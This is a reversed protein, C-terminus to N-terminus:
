DPHFPPCSGVLASAPHRGHPANDAHLTLNIRIRDVGTRALVGFGDVRQIDPLQSFPVPTSEIHGINSAFEM